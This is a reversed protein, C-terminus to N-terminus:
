HSVATADLEVFFLCFQSLPSSAYNASAINSFAALREATRAWLPHYCTGLCVEYCLGSVRITNWTSCHPPDIRKQWCRRPSPLSQLWTLWMKSAAGKRM